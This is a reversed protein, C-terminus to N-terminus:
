KFLEESSISATGMKSCVIGAAKNAWHASEIASYGASLMATFVAIATDGCGTVDVVETQSVPIHEMKDHTVILMGQESLTVLLYELNLQKRIYDAADQVDSLKPLKTQVAVELESKNPTICTFGGFLRWDNKHTDVVSIIKKEQCIQSIRKALAPYLMGKNYDSLIVADYKDLETEIYENVSDGIETNEISRRDEYDVRLLQTNHCVFRTKVITPINPDCIV